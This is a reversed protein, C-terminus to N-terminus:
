GYQSPPGASPASHLVFYLSAAFWLILVIWVLLLKWMSMRAYAYVRM